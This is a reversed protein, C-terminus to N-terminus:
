VGSLRHADAAFRIDHRMPFVVDHITDLGEMM